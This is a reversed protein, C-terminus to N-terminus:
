GQSTHGGAALTEYMPLCTRYSGTRDNADILALLKQRLENYLPNQIFMHPRSVLLWAEYTQMLPQQSSTLRQYERACDLLVFETIEPSYKITDNPDRNAHKLFNDLKNLMPRVTPRYEPNIMGLLVDKYMRPSNGRSVGIDNLLNYVAAVLTHISLMDDEQFYAKIASELQRRAAQLKDIIEPQM